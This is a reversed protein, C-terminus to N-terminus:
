PSASRWSASCMPVARSRRRGGAVDLGLQLAVVAASAITMAAISLALSADALHQAGLFRSLSPGRGVLGRVVDLMLSTSLGWAGPATPPRVNGCHGLCPMVSAGEVTRSISSSSAVLVKRASLRVASPWRGALRRSSGRPFAAAPSRSGRRRPSHFLSAARRPRPEVEDPGRGRRRRGPSASRDWFARAAADQAAAGALDVAHAAELAAGVVIHRLREAAYGSSRSRRAAAAGRAHAARARAASPSCCGRCLRVRARAFVAQVALAHGQGCFHASSRVSAASGVCTNEFSSSNCLM